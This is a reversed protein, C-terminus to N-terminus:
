KAAVMERPRSNRAQCLVGVPASTYNDGVPGEALPQRTTSNRIPVRNKKGARSGSQDFNDTGRADLERFRAVM